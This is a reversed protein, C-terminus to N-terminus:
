ERARHHREGGPLHGRCALYARVKDLAARKRVNLTSPAIGLQRALARDSHGMAMQRVIWREEESLPGQEVDLVERLAQLLEAVPLAEAPDPSQEAAHLLAPPVSARRGSQRLHQLWVKTGVAYVFTSLASRQPDYLGRTLSHWVALWTRQALDEALDHRGGTRRLFLRVVGSHLRRHLADFSARDSASPVASLGPEDGPLPCDGSRATGRQHQADSARVRM